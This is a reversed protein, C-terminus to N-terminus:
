NRIELKFFVDPIIIDALRLWFRDRTRLGNWFGRNVAIVKMSLKCEDM